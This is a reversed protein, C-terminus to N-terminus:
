IIYVYNCNVTKTEEDSNICQLIIDCMFFYDKVFYNGTVMLM